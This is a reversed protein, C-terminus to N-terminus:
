VYDVRSCLPASISTSRFAHFPVFRSPLFCYLAVRYYEVLPCLVMANAAQLNPTVPPTAHRHHNLSVNTIALKADLKVRIDTRNLTYTIRCQALVFPFMRLVHRPKRRM